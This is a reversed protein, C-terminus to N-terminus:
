EGEPTESLNRESPTSPKDLNSEDEKNNAPRDKKITAIANEMDFLNTVGPALPSAEARMPPAEITRFPIAPGSERSVLFFSCALVGFFVLISYLYQLGYRM